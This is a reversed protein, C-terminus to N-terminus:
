AFRDYGLAKGVTWYELSAKVTRSCRLSDELRCTAAYYSGRFPHMLAGCAACPLTMTRALTREAPQMFRRKLAIRYLDRNGTFQLKLHNALIPFNPHKTLSM